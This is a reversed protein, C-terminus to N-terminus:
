VNNMQSNKNVESYTRKLNYCVKCGHGKNRTSVSAQWEHGEKCKWWVKKNSHISVFEPLLSGNKETNWEEALMPNVMALSNEKECQIYQEYIKNRDRSVDIDLNFSISTVRTFLAFLDKITQTFEIDNAGPKSYIIYESKM